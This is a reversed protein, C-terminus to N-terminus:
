PDRPARDIAQRLLQEEAALREIRAELRDLRRRATRSGGERRLREAERRLSAAEAIVRHKRDVLEARSTM